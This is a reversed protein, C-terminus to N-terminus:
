VINKETLLINEPIQTVNKWYLLMNKTYISFSHMLRYWM